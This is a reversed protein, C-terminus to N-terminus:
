KAAFENQSISIEKKFQINSAMGITIIKINHLLLKTLEMKIRRKQDATNEIKV